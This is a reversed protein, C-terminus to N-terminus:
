LEMGGLEKNLFHNIKNLMNMTFPESNTTFALSCRLEHLFVNMLIPSVMLGQPIGRDSHTYDKNSNDWIMNTLFKKFLTGFLLCEVSGQIRLVRMWCAGEHANQPPSPDHFLKPM